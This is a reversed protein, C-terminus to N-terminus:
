DGDHDPDAAAKAAASLHVTDQPQQSPKAPAAKTHANPQAQYAGSVASASTVSNITM